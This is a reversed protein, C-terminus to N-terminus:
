VASPQEEETETQVAAPEEEPPPPPPTYGELRVDEVTVGLEAMQDVHDQINAQAMEHREPPDLVLEPDVADPHAAVFAQAAATNSPLEYPSYVRPPDILPAEEEDTQEVEALETSTETAGAEGGEAAADDEELRTILEDKNGSTHLDRARLEERLEEVTFAEYTDDTDEPM